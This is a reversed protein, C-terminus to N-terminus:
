EQNSWVFAGEDSVNHFSISENKCQSIIQKQKWKKVSSDIILKKFNFIDLLDIISSPAKDGIILYDISAKKSSSYTSSNLYAYKIDGIKDYYISSLKNNQQNLGSTEIKSIFNEIVPSNILYGLAKTNSLLTSDSHFFMQRGNITAFGSNKNTNFVILQKSDLSSFHKFNRYGFSFILLCIIAITLKKKKSIIFILTLLLSFYLLTLETNSLSINEISAYPLQEIYSTSSIFFKIFYHLGKGILLSLPQYIQSILLVVTGCMIVFAAPIAILNTILAYVPFQHFYFISVPTTGIQAAISVATLAWAKDLIKNKFDFLRYIRPQFFLIAIVALFSLQFGVNFLANPDFLLILFASAALSNFSSPNRRSNNGITFFTFMLAARTVSPALGTILAFFWISIIIIFSHLVLLRKSKRLPLLLINLVMTIIGVHLGSVALVHMAGSDSYAEIIEDSLYDKVGLTLAALIAYEDGKIGSNKYIKLVKERTKYAFSYLINGHDESLKSWERARFFGQHYIQKRNLYKKYDFEYPNGNNKIENLKGNILLLDGYKLSKSLSDKELYCLIKSSQPQWIDKHKSEKVKLVIKVSKKTEKPPQEIYGILQEGNIIDQTRINTSNTNIAAALFLAFSIITGFFWRNKYTNFKFIRYIIATIVFIALLGILLNQNFDFISSIAIGAIYPLIFRLFPIKWIENILM